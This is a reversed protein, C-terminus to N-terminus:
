YHHAGEHGLLNAGYSEKSIVAGLVIRKQFTQTKMEHITKEVGAQGLFSMKLGITFRTQSFCTKIYGDCMRKYIECPKCKGGFIQHCVALTSQKIKWLKFYGSFLYKM